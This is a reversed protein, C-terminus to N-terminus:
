RVAELGTQRIQRARNKERATEAYTKEAAVAPDPPALLTKIFTLM